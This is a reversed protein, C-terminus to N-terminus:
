VVDHMIVLLLLSQPFCVMDSKKADSFGTCLLMELGGNGSLFFFSLKLLFCYARRPQQKQEYTLEFAAM